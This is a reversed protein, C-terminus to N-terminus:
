PKNKVGAYNFHVTTGLSVGLIEEGNEYAVCTGQITAPSGIKIKKYDDTHRRDVGCVISSQSGPEGLVIASTDASKVIGNMEVVKGIYMKGAAATDKTFAKLLDGASVIFDPKKNVVDPTKQQYSQYAWFGTAAAILLILSIIIHKLKM